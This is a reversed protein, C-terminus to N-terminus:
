LAGAWNDLPELAFRTWVGVTGSGSGSGGGGLRGDGLRPAAAGTEQRAM